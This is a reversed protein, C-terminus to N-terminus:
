MGALLSWIAGPAFFFAVTAFACLSMAAFLVPSTERREAPPYTPPM